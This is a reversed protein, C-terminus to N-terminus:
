VIDVSSKTASRVVIFLAQLAVFSKRNFVMDTINFSIEVKAISDPEIVVPIDQIFSSSICWFFGM